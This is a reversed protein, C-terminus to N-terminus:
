HPDKRRKGLQFKKDLALARLHLLNIGLDALDALSPSIQAALTRSNLSTSAARLFGQFGQLLKPTPVTGAASLAGSESVPGQDKLAM